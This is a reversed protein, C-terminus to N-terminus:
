LVYKERYIAQCCVADLLEGITSHKNTAMSVHKSKLWDTFVAVGDGASSTCWEALLM